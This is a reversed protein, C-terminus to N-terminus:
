RGGHGDPGPPDLLILGREESEDPHVLANTRALDAAAADLSSWDVLSSWRQARDVMRLVPTPNGQRSMARLAGLYDSRFSLPIVVRCLGAASLEANLLVRALRGNGDAFPHVETVAFGAFVARAFGAPLTEYFGWAERLTGAVLGPAVFSTGGARNAAQKWEGPRKAPRSELIRRNLTKLLEAFDEADEPVRTRLEPDIVVEFTGLVDHADAPRDGPVYGGFVIREAEDVEFETGEIFNSFYAEFFSFARRPDPVEARRPSVHGALAGHLEEFLSARAADFPERRGRARGPATELRTEGTGLLAAILDGLKEQEAGLALTTALKGAEDRIRLLEDEGQNRAIRELWEELEAPSLTRAVGSRARSPRINELATRAQGSRHLAGFSMDGPLPGPGHRPRLSLGPLSVTGPNAKLPGSDLFLSGDAAPSGEVASRAVIVADPFFLASIGVWRRRVLLDEPEELNWTYLGRALRRLEGRRAARGAADAADATPRFVEPQDFFERKPSPM